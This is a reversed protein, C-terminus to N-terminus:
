GKSESLTGNIIACVQEVEVAALEPFCPLSLVELSARETEPLAGPEYGLDSCAPQLYDPIPYHVACGIGNNRLSDMIRDRKSSRVVFFQFVSQEPQFISTLERNSTNLNIHYTQAILRRKLNWEELLPLKARLVAAQIEDMISSRGGSLHSTYEHDCGYQRLLRANEAIKRDNTVIAGAEGMAGLIRTPSFCFCGIHGWAGVPVGDFTAGHAQFCDEIIALNSLRARECLADLDAVRGYLHTIIVARSQPTIAKDLGDPSLCLTIPDIEAFVPVAGVARIAVTSHMGANAVTIIEDGPQIGLARLGIEIADVGNSVAVGHPVACYAAFEDEFAEVEPGSIYFGSSLVRNIASRIEYRQQSYQRKLDVFPVLHEGARLHNSENHSEMDADISQGATPIRKM